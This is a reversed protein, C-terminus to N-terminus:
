KKRFGRTQPLRQSQYKMAEKAPKVLDSQAFMLYDAIGWHAYCQELETEQNGKM